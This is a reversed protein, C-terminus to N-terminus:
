IKLQNLKNYSITAYMMRHNQITFVGCHNQQQKSQREMTHSRKLRTGTFKFM